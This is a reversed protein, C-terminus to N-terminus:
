ISISSANFGIVVCSIIILVDILVSLFFVPVTIKTPMAALNTILSLGMAAIAFPWFIFHNGSFVIAMMTLITLFCGHLTISAALWGLRYKEQSDSWSIFRGWISKGSNIETETVAHSHQVFTEM